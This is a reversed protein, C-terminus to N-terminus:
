LMCSVSAPQFVPSWALLVLCWTNFHILNYLKFIWMRGNLDTCFLTRNMKCSCYSREHGQTPPTKTFVHIIASCIWWTILNLKRNQSIQLRPQIIMTGVNFYFQVIYPISIHSSLGLLYRRDKYRNHIAIDFTALCRRRQQTGVKYTYM